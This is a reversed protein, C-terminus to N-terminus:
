AAPGAARGDGAGGVERRRWQQRGDGGRTNGFYVCIVLGGRPHWSGLAVKWGAQALTEEAKKDHGGLGSAQATTSGSGARVGGRDSSGGREGADNRDGSCGKCRKGGGGRFLASWPYSPPLNSSSICRARAKGKRGTPDGGMNDATGGGAGSGSRRGSRGSGAAAV